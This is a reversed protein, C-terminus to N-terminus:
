NSDVTLWPGTATIGGGPASTRSDTFDTPDVLVSDAYLSSVGLLVFTVAIM